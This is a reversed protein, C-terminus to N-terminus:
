AAIHHTTCGEGHGALSRHRCGSLSSGGLRTEDHVGLLFDWDSLSRAARRERVRGWRDPASVLFIGFSARNAPRYLPGQVLALDPAFSFSDPTRLWEHDYEFSFVEGGRGVQRRLSGMRRSERFRDLDAFVAV